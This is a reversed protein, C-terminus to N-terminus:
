LSYKIADNDSKSIFKLGKVDTWRFDPQLQADENLCEGVCMLHPLTLGDAVRRVVTVVGSVDPSCTIAQIRKKARGRIYMKCISM